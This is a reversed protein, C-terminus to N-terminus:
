ALESGDVRASGASLRLAWNRIHAFALILSGMVTVGTEAIPALGSLAGFGIL